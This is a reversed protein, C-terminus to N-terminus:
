LRIHEWKGRAYRVVFGLSRVAWDLYMAFWIGLVGLGLDVGFIKSCFVRFIWMSAISLIMCYRVDNAARLVNPLTFSLPWILICFATHSWMIKETMQSAEASLNYLWIIFPLLAVLILSSILIFLYTLRMLKRKYYRTQKYDGAGVCQATVSLTAYGMAIGPLTQFMALNNCVANAATSATGFGAVISLVLIKGLQFMSNEVGNPVGIHLIKKLMWGEFHFRFPKPLHLPHSQNRLLVVMGVGAFIRSVLTPLAAGAVGWGMGYIFIGNGGINIANMLLSVYMSIKSNGMARFTAAGANYIALFPISAGVILLYTRCSSIVEAEADGFLGYLIWNKCLYIGAMVAVSLVGVFLFLQTTARCAEEPKKRGLSQGSVVAGGTALAAFINILLVFVTDMMSVGSVAAEGASAVMISDALGVFVALFQEIILPAILKRLAQNSFLYSSTDESLKKMTRGTEERM